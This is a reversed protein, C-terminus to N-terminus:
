SKSGNLLESIYNYVIKSDKANEAGIHFRIRNDPFIDSYEKWDYITFPIEDLKLIWEYQVKDYKDGENYPEGFLETLKNITSLITDGHFSTMPFNILDKVESIM